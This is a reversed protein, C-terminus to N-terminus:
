DEKLEIIIKSNKHNFMYHYLTIDIRKLGDIKKDYSLPPPDLSVVSVNLDKPQIIILRLKKGKQSLIAGHKTTTVTAQTMMQWTVEKTSDSPTFDDEIELASGNLKKFTRIEKKLQGRFITTLDLSVLEPRHKVQYKIIPAFGNVEHREGNVTLTSHFKNGKTLLSWRPSNQSEDWLAQGVHKNEELQHYNHTGPDISWRVGNLDFVFSGADMNGHNVSASGGKVGLYFGTHENETARFIAIPNEGEGKWYVPLTGTKKKRFESLWILQIPAFMPPSAHQRMAKRVLAMYKTKNLFLSNGTKQAFWALSGRVNLNLGENLSADSYNFAKGQPDVAEMRYVASEMFGPAKPLNFDTGLATKFFSIAALNFSTGYQWYSPGEPYAGDPSYEALEFPLDHIARKIIRAALKPYQDAVVLAAASLGSHCVQNWNDPATIWWNKRKGRKEKLSSLLHQKLAFRASKVTGKPLWRGCWDIGIAIGYSMTAVGLFQVQDWDKFHSVTNLTKTLRNLYKKNKTIRYVLALVSIRQAAEGSAPLRPGVLKWKVVPKTCIEDAYRHLYNYYTKVLNDQKIAQKLDSLKKQTLLLRPERKKLHTRLWTTTVPDNVIHSRIWVASVANQASVHNNSQAMLSFASFLCILITLCARDILPNKKLSM